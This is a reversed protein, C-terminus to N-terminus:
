SRRGSRSRTTRSGSSANSSCRASMSRIDSSSAGRIGCSQHAHYAQAAAERVDGNRVYADIAAGLSYAEPAMLGTTLLLPKSGARLLLPEFYPRSACALVISRPRRGSGGSSRANPTFEMLGDHGIYAIVDADAGTPLTVGDQTRVVGRRIGASSELFDDITDRIYAGDWADAVIYAERAGITKRMVLRELVRPPKEGTAKVLTWHEHRLMWSKVGFDAGWYLNNRPDQGNGIAAPVPVIGQHKNDCLAVTVHIVLAALLVATM